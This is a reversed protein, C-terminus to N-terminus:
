AMFEWSKKFFSNGLNNSCIYGDLASLVCLLLSPMESYHFRLKFGLAPLLLCLSLFSLPRPKWVSTTGKADKSVTEKKKEPTVSRYQSM